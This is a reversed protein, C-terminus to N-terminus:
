GLIGIGVRCWGGGRYLLFQHKFHADKRWWDGFSKRGKWKLKKWDENEFLLNRVTGIHKRCWTGVARRSRGLLREWDQYKGVVSTSKLTTGRITWQILFIPFKNHIKSAEQVVFFKQQIVYVCMLKRRLGVERGVQWGGEGGWGRGVWGDGWWGGVERGGNQSTGVGWGIRELRIWFDWFGLDNKLSISVMNLIELNGWIFGSCM